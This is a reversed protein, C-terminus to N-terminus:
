QLAVIPGIELNLRQQNTNYECFYYLMDKTKM